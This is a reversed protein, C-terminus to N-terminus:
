IEQLHEGDEQRSREYHKLDRQNSDELTCEELGLTMYTTLSHHTVRDQILPGCRQM